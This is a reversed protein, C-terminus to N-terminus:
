RSQKCQPQNEKTRGLMYCNDHSFVGPYDFEDPVKFVMQGIQATLGVTPRLLLYFVEKNKVRAVRYAFSKQNFTIESIIPVQHQSISVLQSTQSLYYKSIPSTTNVSGYAYFLGTDIPMTQYLVPQNASFGTLTFKAHVKITYTSWSSSWTLQESHRTIKLFSSDTEDVKCEFRLPYTNILTSTISANCYNYTWGTIDTPAKIYIAKIRDDNFINNIYFIATNAYKRLWVNPTQTASISMSIGSTIPNHAAATIYFVDGVVGPRAVTIKFKNDFAEAYYGNTMWYISISVTSSSYTTGPYLVIWRRTPFSVCTFSNTATCDNPM